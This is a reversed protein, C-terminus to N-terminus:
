AGSPWSLGSADDGAEPSKRAVQTRELRLPSSEAERRGSGTADGGVFARDGERAQKASSWRTAASTSQWAFGAQQVHCTPCGPGGATSGGSEPGDTGPGAHRSATTMSPRARRRRPVPSRMPDLWSTATSDTPGRGARALGPSPKASITWPQVSIRVRVPFRARWTRSPAGVRSPPGFRAPPWGSAALRYAGTGNGDMAMCFRGTPCSIELAQSSGPIAQPTSWNSGNYFLGDGNVDVAGCFTTTGCSLQSLGAATVLAPSSWSTGNYVFANGAGDGAACFSATVCSVTVLGNNIDTHSDITQPRAWHGSSYAVAQGGGVAMCFSRSACSVGRLLHVGIVKSPRSWQPRAATSASVAVGLGLIAIVAALTGLRGILRM